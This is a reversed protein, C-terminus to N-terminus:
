SAEDNMEANDTKLIKHKKNETESNRTILTVSSTSACSSSAIM